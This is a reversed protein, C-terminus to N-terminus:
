AKTVTFVGANEAVSSGPAVFAQFAALALGTNSFTGAEIILQGTGSIAIPGSFTGGYINFTGITAKLVAKPASFTGGYINVTGGSTFIYLGWGNESTYSGSNINLTGENSVAAAVSNHDYYAGTQIVTCDTFSVTGGAAECGGGVLANVTTNAVDITGGPFAKISNGYATENNLVMGDVKTNSNVGIITCYTGPAASITGNQIEASGARVRMAANNNAGTLTQGGFDITAQKDENFDAGRIDAIVADGLLTVTGGDIVQNFASRLETAAAPVEVLRLPYPATQDYDPNGFGDNEYNFQTAVVDVDFSVSKGQYENGATEKMKIALTFTETSTYDVGGYGAPALVMIQELLTGQDNLSKVTGIFTSEDMQTAGDELLFVDLVDTIDAVSADTAVNAINIKYKLWLTGENSVTATAVQSRGPEWAFDDSNFLPETSGDNLAIQLTGAQISNGANTVSDTFWAYTTGVLMATCLLLSVACALISKKTSKM